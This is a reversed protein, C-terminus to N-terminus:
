SGGFEEAMERARGAARGVAERIAAAFGRSELAHLAAMTTGGPSTVRRRLEAPDEGSHELMRAAGLLTQIALRRALAPDLGLDTGAHIMAEILRYVYAPGSGSLGTIVDLLEEDVVAVDGVARFIAEATALHAPTALAGGVIATASEQVAASTNPMARIAPVAPLATEITRLPFGAAVSIVLHQTHVHPALETLAVAMDLPKVALVLVSSAGALAAKSRTVRVGYAEELGRLRTENSRNTAWIQAPGAIRQGLLGRILAGAMNGAGIFGIGGLNM